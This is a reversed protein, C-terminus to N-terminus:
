KDYNRFFVYNRELHKISWELDDFFEFAVEKNM